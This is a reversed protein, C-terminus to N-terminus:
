GRIFTRLTLERTWHKGAQGAAAEARQTCDTAAQVASQRDPQDLLRRRRAVFERVIVRVCECVRGQRNAGQLDVGSSSPTTRWHGAGLRLVGVGARRAALQQQVAFHQM